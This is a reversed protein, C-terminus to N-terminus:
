VTAPPQRRGLAKLAQIHKCQHNTFSGRYIADACTCHWALQGNDQRELVVQYLMRGGGVEWLLMCGAECPTPNRYILRYRYPSETRKRTPGPLLTYVVNSVLPTRLKKKTKTQIM